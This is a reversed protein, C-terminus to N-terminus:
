AKRLVILFHDGRSRLLPWGGCRDEIRQLQSVLAPHRNAFAQLYPPPVFLGLARLSVRTMGAAAFMSELERPTLYRTWVTRGDLPVPVLGRRFRITARSVDGRALYLVIEWPCVRGIVSAVFVGGPKLREAISRAAQPLDEVCNLPGFNTLAADFLAGSGALRDLEHIGVAHVDVRDAAGAAQVLDRAEDVMAASSDVATVRYGNQALHVADTGPGCGLDLIHSGAPVWTSIAPASGTNGSTSRM